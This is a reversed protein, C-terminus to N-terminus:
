EKPLFQDVYHGPYELEFLDWASEENDAEIEITIKNSTELDFTYFLYTM